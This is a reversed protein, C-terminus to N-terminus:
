KAGRGSRKVRKGKEPTGDGDHRWPAEASQCFADAMEMLEGWTQASLWCVLSEARDKLAARWEGGVCWMTFTPGIRPEKSDEFVGATLWEALRPYDEALGKPDALLRERKSKEITKRKVEQAGWIVAAIEHKLDGVRRSVPRVVRGRFIRGSRDSWLIFVVRRTYWLHLGRGWIGIRWERLHSDPVVSSVYVYDGM